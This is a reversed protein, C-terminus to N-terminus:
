YPERIHTIKLRSTQPHKEVKEFISYINEPEYSKILLMLILSNWLNQILMLIQNKEHILVRDFLEHYRDKLLSRGM